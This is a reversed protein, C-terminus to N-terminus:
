KIECLRALCDKDTDPNESGEEPCEPCGSVLAAGGLARRRLCM